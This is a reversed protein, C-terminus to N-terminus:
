PLPSIYKEETPQIYKTETEQQIPPKASLKQSFDSIFYVIIGGVVTIVLTIFAGKIFQMQKETKSIPIIAEKLNIQDKRLELNETKRTDVESDLKEGIKKILEQLDTLGTQFKTKWLDDRNLQEKIDHIETRLNSISSNISDITSIISNISSPKTDVVTKILEDPFDNIPEPIKNSQKDTKYFVGAVLKRGPLLPYNRSSLNFLGFILKGKYNPDIILGGLLVIGDLSLKRKTSLQCYIDNPLNLSEKTIVFAVEGPKIVANESSLVVDRPRGSDVTLVMNSLIFDYKIGECSNTSGDKIFTQNKVALLLDTESLIEM